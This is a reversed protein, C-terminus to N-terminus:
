GSHWGGSIEKHKAMMKVFINKIEELRKETKAEFRLVLVPLNSSARVLGWGDAFSIRAGNIDNVNYGGKKFEEVLKEVVQYKVEDPCDAHITPTSLYQPTDAMIQSFSKNLNSLYEILKLAAFVADDFGYYIPPGFFIHGSNEGALPAKEKKRKSKIYSHGTIWMIPKGGHNKIDEELAQTCKVDFIIKAGPQKKLVQRSLLIMFQDPFIMQGKEDTMGLRDGDGDFAMGLDAKTEVVKKGTEEMMEVQSPNPYYVPFTWDLNTHLGVVECGAEKLIEPVIAGATGNGCNVVVKLKRGIKVRGLLDKKYLTKCDKKEIKGRGKEFKENKTLEYLEKVEEPVLTHSYDMGLKFGSWGNPNHSATIMAGGKSKFYYQAAYMMPTIVLGLEIVEVGTSLLGKSFIENFRESCDRYDYGLVSKDVGRKKLMTGFAKAIIEVAKENLEDNALRGRIDYERFMTKKLNAM